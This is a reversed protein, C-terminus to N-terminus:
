AFIKCNKNRFFQEFEKDSMDTRLELGFEAFLANIKLEEEKSVISDKTKGRAALVGRQSDFNLAELAKAIHCHDIDLLNFLDKLVREPENCLNSYLIIREYISKEQLYTLTNAITFLTFLEVTSVSPWWTQYKKFKAYNDADSAKIYPTQILYRHESGLWKFLKHDDGPAMIKKMSEMHPLVNRTNFLLKIQPFIDHIDSMMNSYPPLLKVFIRDVNDSEDVHCLDMLFSKLLGLYEKQTIKGEVFLSLLHSAAFPQSLVRTGPIKEFMQCVLTSGCRTTMNMMTTQVKPEGYRKAIKHFTDHSVVLIQRSMVNQFMFMFPFKTVDWLNVTPDTVSFYASTSTFGMLIVNKGKVMEFPDVFSNHKLLFNDLTLHTVMHRGTRFKIDFLQGNKTGNKEASEIEQWTPKFYSLGFLHFVLNDIAQLIPRVIQLILWLIYPDIEM